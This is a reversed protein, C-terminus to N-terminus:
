KGTLSLSNSCTFKSSTRATKSSISTQQKEQETWNICVFNIKAVTHRVRAYGYSCICQLDVIHKALKGVTTLAKM